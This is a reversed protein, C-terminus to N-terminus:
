LDCPWFKDSKGCRRAQYSRRCARGAMARATLTPSSTRLAWLTAVSSSARRTNNPWVARYLLRNAKAGQDWGVHEGADNITTPQRPPVQDPIERYNLGISTAGEFLGGGGWADGKPWVALATLYPTRSVATWTSMPTEWKAAFYILLDGDPSLDCRREYIRGKLWQGPEIRDDDLWWRLVLVQRSPGRRFVVASRGDRALIAYIRCAPSNDPAIQTIPETM